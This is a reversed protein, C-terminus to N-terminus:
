PRYKLPKHNPFFSRTSALRNEYSFIFSSPSSAEVQIDGLRVVTPADVAETHNIAGIALYSGHQINEPKFNAFAGSLTRQRNGVFFADDLEVSWTRNAGDITWTLGTPVNSLTYATSYNSEGRDDIVLQAFPQSHEDSRSVIAIALYGAETAPYGPYYVNGNGTAPAPIDSEDKPANANGIMAYFSNGGGNAKETGLSPSGDIELGSFSLSLIQVFPDFNSAKSILTARHSHATIGVDLTIQGQSLVGINGEKATKAITWVNRTNLNSFDDVLVSSASINTIVSCTALTKILLLIVKASRLIKTNM